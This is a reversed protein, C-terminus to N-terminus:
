PLSLVQFHDLLLEAMGVDLAGLQVGIDSELVDPGLYGIGAHVEGVVLWHGM